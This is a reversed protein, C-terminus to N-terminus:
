IEVGGEQTGLGGLEQRVYSQVSVIKRWSHGEREEKTQTDLNLHSGRASVNGARLNGGQTGAPSEKSRQTMAHEGSANYYKAKTGPKGSLINGWLSVPSLVLPVHKEVNVTDSM